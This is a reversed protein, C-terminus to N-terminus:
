SLHLATSHLLDRRDRELILSVSSIWVPLQCKIVQLLLLPPASLMARALDVRQVREDREVPGGSHGGSSRLPRFHLGAVFGQWRYDMGISGEM